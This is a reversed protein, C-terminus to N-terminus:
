ASVEEVQPGEDRMRRLYKEVTGIPEGSALHLAKPGANPNARAVELFARYRAEAKAQRSTTGAKAAAKTVAEVAEAVPAPQVEVVPSSAAVFAAVVDEMPATSVFGNAEAVVIRGGRVAAEAVSPAVLEAAEVAAPTLDLALAMLAAVAVPALALLRASATAQVDSLAAWVLWSVGLAVMAWAIPHRRETRLRLLGFFLLLDPLAVYFYRTVDRIGNQGLHDWVHPVNVGVALVSLVLAAGLWFRRPGGTM